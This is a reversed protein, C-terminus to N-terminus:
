IVEKADSYGSEMLTESQQRSFNLFSSLGLLKKPAIVKISTNELGPRIKSWFAVLPNSISEKQFEIGEEINKFSGILYLEYLRELAELRNRPPSLHTEGGVPSLLVVLIESAGHTIAPLIPTNAMVGGDWHPAGDVMQWPFILPIASSALIHEIRIKPNEFFKLEATMVNVATIIVKKQSANLNQFNLKELLLNQLPTTDALAHFRRRLLARLSNKWTLKMVQSKDLERWLDCLHNSDMGSGIACANIAGVSTGTIIDPDWGKESLARFVGAQYAGRAGGGSLVLAKKKM